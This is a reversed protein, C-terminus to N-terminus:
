RYLDPQAQSRALMASAPMAPRNAEKIRKIWSGVRDPHGDTWGGFRTGVRLDAGHGTVINKYGKACVRPKGYAADEFITVTHRVREVQSVCGNPAHSTYEDSFFVHTFDIM